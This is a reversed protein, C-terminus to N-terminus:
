ISYDGFYPVWGRDADWKKLVVDYKPMKVELADMVIKWWNVERKVGPWGSIPKSLTM